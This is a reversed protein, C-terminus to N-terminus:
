HFAAGHPMEDPDVSNTLTGTERYGSHFSNVDNEHNNFLINNTENPCHISQDSQASTYSSTPRGM